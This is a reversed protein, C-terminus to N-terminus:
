KSLFVFDLVFYKLTLCFLAKCYQAQFGKSSTDKLIPATRRLLEEIKLCSDVFPSACVALAPSKKAVKKLEQFFTSCWGVQV